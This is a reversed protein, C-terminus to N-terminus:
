IRKTFTIPVALASRNFAVHYGVDDPNVVRIDDMRNVIEELAVRLNMRALSSGACRHPGVGFAIHPNRDREANFVDPDEFEQEDRNASAWSILVMEGEHLEKDGITVDQTVTRGISVFPPDLRLLEEVAAPILEPRERLLQPIQPERSFRQIFQGLAGATTELGGLIILQIIGIVEDRTIPRGDIDAALVADVIDGRPPQAERADLFEQIWAFMGQWCARQNPNEPTSAGTALENLEAVRDIPANLVLEFFARGPFPRAFEDMFECSGRDIFADILSVVIERTRDKYKDVVQPTFFPTILKKYVRQLPPDILEPIAAVIMQYNPPIAIGRESSFTEWDQAIKRVNHYDTVVWYGGRQASHTVPCRARMKALTQPMDAGLASSTYDFDTEWWNDSLEAQPPVSRDTM